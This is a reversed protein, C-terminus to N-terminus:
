AAPGPPREPEGDGREYFTRLTVPPLLPIRDGPNVPAFTESELVIRVEQIGFENSSFVNIVQVDEPLASDVCQLWRVDRSWPQLMQAVLEPTIRLIALRRDDSM